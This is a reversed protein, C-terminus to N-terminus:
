WVAHTKLASVQRFRLWLVVFVTLASISASEPSGTSDSCSPRRDTDSRVILTLMSTM